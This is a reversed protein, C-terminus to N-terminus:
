TTPMGRDITRHRDKALYAKSRGKISRAARNLTRGEGKIPIKRM